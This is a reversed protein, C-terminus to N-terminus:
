RKLNVLEQVMEDSTSIVRSSAQFGRQALILDTFERALDVNSMELVGSKIAGAENEGAIGRTAEGSVQSNRYHTEGVKELGENNAFTAVSIQAIDKIVGNSYRASIRGNEAIGFDKLAGPGRGDQVLSIVTNAGYQHLGTSNSTLDIAFTFPDAGSSPPTFTVTPPTAPLVLNGSAPDFELAVTSGVAANTADYLNMDWTNAGTKTFTVKLQNETGLGDIVKAVSEVTTGVATNPALQGIIGLTQTAQAPISQYDNFNISRLAGVPVLQSTDPDALWGQVLGGSGDVLNNFADISFSGSRTYLEDGDVNVIFFGDGSIATDFPRDTLQFSGTTFQAATARVTVGLGVQLPNVSADNRAVGAANRLTQSFTDAFLVRNAKFGNSNVNAINNSVVDMMLQHARLGSVGSFMSRM